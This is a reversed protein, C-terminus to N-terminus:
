EDKFESNQMIELYWNRNVEAKNEAAAEGSDIWDRERQMRELIPEIRERYADMLIDFARDQFDNEFPKLNIDAALKSLDTSLRDLRTEAMMFFHAKEVDSM